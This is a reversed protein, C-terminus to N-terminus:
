PHERTEAYEDLIYDAYQTAQRETGIETLQLNNIWQFYHTLEHAIARLIAALANDKGRRQVMDIYTGTSVKAFPELQKDYPLLITASVMEGDRAKIQEAAKIYVVIRLPFQYETRLWAAFEKCARVVEPDTGRQCRLRLGHRMTEYPPLEKQWKQMSWIHM